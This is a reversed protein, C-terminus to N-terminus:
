RWRLLMYSPALSTPRTTDLLVRGDDWTHTIVDKIKSRGHRPLLRRRSQHKPTDINYSEINSNGSSNVSLLRKSIGTKLYLTCYRNVNRNTALTTWQLFTTSINWLWILRNRFSLTGCSQLSENSSIIVTLFIIIKILSM